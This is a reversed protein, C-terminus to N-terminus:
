AVPGSLCDLDTVVGNERANLSAEWAAIKGGSMTWVELGVCARANGSSKDIWSDEWRIALKNGDIALCTKRVRYDQQRALRCLFLRRLAARGTQEPQGGFRFVCDETFTGVLAEIDARHFLEEVARLLTNAQHRSWGDSGKPFTVGHM